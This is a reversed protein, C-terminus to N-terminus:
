AKIPQPLRVALILPLILVIAGLGYAIQSGQFFYLIAAGLPGVARALSGASRFVGLYRGQEENSAYLSVMASLSPSVMGVGMSLFTLGLYFLFTSQASSLILLALVGCFMGASTLKKEGVKPALRRVLMGQTMILWFGIYVFMLGNNLPTYALREVALFILTFEMGSFSLMFIFYVLCTLRVDKNPISFLQSVKGKEEPKAAETKLTETFRANLWLWNIGALVMAILAPLSFPNLGWSAAAPILELLDVRSALGGIAPGFLFGLGIAVGVVAMGKSRKERSTVDSIAASAVSINGSMCGAFVRSAVLIWFDGAFVWALYGFVTGLLTLRLVKKRGVRDSYRGWIPSFVFQLVSYLSGLIGGFLVTVFFRSGEGEIPSLKELVGVISQLLGFRDRGEAIYYDLMAPFLPFIISFGM